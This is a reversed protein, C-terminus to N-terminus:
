RVMHSVVKVLGKNELRLRENDAKLQNLTKDTIQESIKLVKLDKKLSATKEQIDTVNRTYDEYDVSSLAAKQNYSVLRRQTKELDQKMNALETELKANEAKNEQWLRYLRQNV